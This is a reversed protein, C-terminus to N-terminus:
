WVRLSLFGWTFARGISLALLDIFAVMFALMIAVMFAAMLAVMFAFVGGLSVSTASVPTPFLLKASGLLQFVPPM